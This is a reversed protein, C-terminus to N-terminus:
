KEEGEDTTKTTDQSTKRPKRRGELARQEADKSLEEVQISRAELAAQIGAGINAHEKMWERLGAIQSRHWYRRASNEDRVPLLEQPLRHEREWQRLTAPRRDLIAAMEGISYYDEDKAYQKLKETSTM